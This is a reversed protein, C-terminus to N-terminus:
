DKMSLPCARHLSCADIFSRSGNGPQINYFTVLCASGM